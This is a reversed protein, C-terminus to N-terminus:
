SPTKKRLSGFVGCTRYGYAVMNRRGTTSLPKATGNKPWMEEGHTGSNAQKIASTVQAETFRSRKM